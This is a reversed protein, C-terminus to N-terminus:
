CAARFRTNRSIGATIGAAFRVCSDRPTHSQAVFDGNRLHPSRGKPRVCCSCHRKALCQRGAPTSSCMVRSLIANPLQSTRHKALTRLRHHVFVPLRVDGYYSHLRRVFRLSRCRLQHLSPRHGLPISILPGRIPSLAMCSSVTSACTDCCSIVHPLTRFCKVTLGSTPATHSFSAHGSRHPPRSTVQTGVAVACATFECLMRDHSHTSHGRTGALTNM